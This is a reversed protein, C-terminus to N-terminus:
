LGDCIGVGDVSGPFGAPLIPTQPPSAATPLGETVAGGVAEVVTVAHLLGNTVELAVEKGRLPMGAMGLVAM